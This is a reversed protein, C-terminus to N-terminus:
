PKGFTPNAFLDGQGALRPDPAIGFQPRLALLERVKADPLREVNGLQSALILMRCYSDLIETHWYAQEVSAGWSVTGHNSLVVTNAGGVFPRITAAFGPGGPTEYEARPVVGLFIEVEPLIGSPIDIRAIAFATAHPPHCHVVAKADGNGRYVELHLMIESTRRRTGSLQNGALDVVCLDDASMFGKCILTPTCLVERENLRFSVNGDNGAAFGRLYLRQGIECIQKRIDAFDSEPM